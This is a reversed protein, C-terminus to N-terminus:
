AAIGYRPATSARAIPSNTPTGDNSNVSKDPLIHSATLTTGDWHTATKATMMEWWGVEGGLPGRYGSALLVMEQATKIENFVRFDELLGDFPVSTPGSILAGLGLSDGADSTIPGSPTLVETINQSVGDIYIIPDNGVSNGDYTIACLTWTGAVLAGDGTEWIGAGGSWEQVFRLRDRPDTGGADHIIMGMQVKDYLRQAAPVTTDPRVWACITVTRINDLSADSGCDIHQNVGDFDIAM